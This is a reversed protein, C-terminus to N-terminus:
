ASVGCAAAPSLLGAIKAAAKEEEDLAALYSSFAFDRAETEAGLFVDWRLAVTRATERWAARARALRRATVIDFPKHDM